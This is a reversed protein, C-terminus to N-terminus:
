TPHSALVSEVPYHSGGPVRVDHRREVSEASEVSAVTATVGFPSVSSSTSLRVLSLKLESDEYWIYIITSFFFIDLVFATNKDFIEIVVATM